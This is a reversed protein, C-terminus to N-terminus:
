MGKTGGGKEGDSQVRLLSPGHAQGAQMAQLLRLQINVNWDAHQRECVSSIHSMVFIFPESSQACLSFVLKWEQNNRQLLYGYM